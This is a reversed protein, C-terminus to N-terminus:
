PKHMGTNTHQHPPRLAECFFNFVQKELEAMKHLRNIETDNKWEARLTVCSKKRTGTGGDSPGKREAGEPFFAPPTRICVLFSCTHANTHMFIHFSICPWTAPSLHHTHHTHTDMLAHLGFRIFSHTQSSSTKKRDKPSHQMIVVPASYSSLLFAM